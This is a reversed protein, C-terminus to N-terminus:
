CHNSFKVQSNDPKDSNDSKGSDDSNDSNESNDFNFAFLPARGLYLYQEM